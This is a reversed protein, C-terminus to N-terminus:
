VISRRVHRSSPAMRADEINMVARAADGALTSTSARSAGRPTSRTGRTRGTLGPLSVRSYGFHSGPSCEGSPGMAPKDPSLNELLPCDMAQCRAASLIYAKWRLTGAPDLVSSTANSTSATLPAVSLLVSRVLVSDSARM